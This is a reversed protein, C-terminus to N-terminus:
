KKINGNKDILSETRDYNLLLEILAEDTLEDKRNEWQVIAINLMTPDGYESEINYQSEMRRLEKIDSHLRKLEQIKDFVNEWNPNPYKKLEVGIM